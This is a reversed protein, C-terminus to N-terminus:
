LNKRLAEIHRVLREFRERSEPCSAMGRELLTLAEDYRAAEKLVIALDWYPEAWKKTISIARELHGIGEELRGQRALSMGLGALAYANNPAKELVARSCSESEEYRRQFFRVFGMLDLCPIDGPDIALATTLVEAARDLDKRQVAKKAEELLRFITEKERM